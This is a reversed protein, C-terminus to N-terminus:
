FCNGWLAFFWKESLLMKCFIMVANPKQHHHNREEKIKKKSLKTPFQIHSNIDVAYLTHLFLGSVEICHNKLGTCIISHYKIDGCVGM